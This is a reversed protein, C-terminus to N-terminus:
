HAVGVPRIEALIGSGCRVIVAGYREKAPFSLSVEQTEPAQPAAGRPAEARLVVEQVPPDVELLNGRELRLRYGGTPATVRGVVNLTREASPM